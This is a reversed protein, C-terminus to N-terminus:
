GRLSNGKGRGGRLGWANQHSDSTKYGYSMRKGHYNGKELVKKKKRKVANSEGGSLGGRKL